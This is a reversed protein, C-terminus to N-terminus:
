KTTVNVQLRYKESQKNASLLLTRLQRATLHKWPTHASGEDGKAREMFKRLKNSHILAACNSCVRLNLEKEGCLITTCDDARLRIWNNKEFALPKWGLDDDEHEQYAYSDWLSGAIWQVALGMCVDYEPVKLYGREDSDLEDGDSDKDGGDDGNECSIIQLEELSRSLLDDFESGPSQPASSAVPLEDDDDPYSISLHRLNIHSQRPTLNPTSANSISTTHSEGMSSVAGCGLNLSDNISFNM